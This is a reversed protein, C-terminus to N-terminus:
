VFPTLPLTQNPYLKTPARGGVQVFFGMNGPGEQLMIQSPSVEVSALWVGAEAAGGGRLADFREKTMDGFRYSLYDSVSSRRRRPKSHLNSHLRRADRLERAEYIYDREAFLPNAGKSNYKENVFKRIKFVAKRTRFQAVIKKREKGGLGLDDDLAKEEVAQREREVDSATREIHLATALVVSTRRAAVVTSKRAGHVAAGVSGRRGKRGGPTTPMDGVTDFEPSPSRAKDPSPSKRGRDVAVAEERSHALRRASESEPMLAYLEVRWHTAKRGAEWSTLGGWKNMRHQGIVCRADRGGVAGQALQHLRSKSGRLGGFHDGGKQIRLPEYGRARGPELPDSAQRWINTVAPKTKGKAFWQMRLTLTGGEDRLEDITQADLQAYNPSTPDSKHLADVGRPWRLPATQRYLLTWGTSQELVHQVMSTFEKASEVEAKRGVNEFTAGSALKVRAGISEAAVAAVYDDGAAPARAGIAKGGSGRRARIWKVAYGNVKGKEDIVVETRRRADQKSFAVTVERVYFCRNGGSRLPELNKNKNRGFKFLASTVKISCLSVLQHLVLSWFAHHASPPEDVWESGMAKFTSWFVFLLNLEGLLVAFCCCLAQARTRTDWPLLFFPACLWHAVLFWLIILSVLRRVYAVVAHWVRCCGARCRHQRSLAAGRGESAVVAAAAPTPTSSGAAAAAVAGDRQLGLMLEGLGLAALMEGVLAVDGIPAGNIAIM